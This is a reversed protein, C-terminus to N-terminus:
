GLSRAATEQVGLRQDPRIELMYMDARRPNMDIAFEERLHLQLSRVAVVFFVGLGVAMLIVRTQNGPRYLSGVGQRVSFSPLRRIGRAFKMLAAAMVNLALTMAALGGLFIAGI